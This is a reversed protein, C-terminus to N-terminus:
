KTRFIAPGFLSMEMLPSTFCAQLQSRSLQSIASIYQCGYLEFFQLFGQSIGMWVQHHRLGLRGLQGDLWFVCEVLRDWEGRILGGLNSMHPITQIGFLFEHEDFGELFIPVDECLLMSGHQTNRPFQYLMFKEDVWVGHEDLLANTTEDL